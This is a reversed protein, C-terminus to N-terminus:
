APRVHWGAAATVPSTPETGSAPACPRKKFTYGARRAFAWITRQDVTLGRRALEAQLLKLTVDGEDLRARLYDANAGEILYPRHGGMQGPAVSGTARKRAVWRIVTSVGLEYLAAVSRTSEGAEVRAIVRERLDMSYPRGM